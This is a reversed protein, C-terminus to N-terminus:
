LHLKFTMLIISNRVKFEWMNEELPTASKCKVNVDKIWNSNIKKNPSLFPNLKGGLTGMTGLLM